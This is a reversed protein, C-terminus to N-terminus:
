YSIWSSCSKKIRNETLIIYLYIMSTKLQFEDYVGLIDNSLIASETSRNGNSLLQSNKIMNFYVNDNWKISKISYNKNLKKLLLFKLYHNKFKEKSGNKIEFIQNCKKNWISSQNQLQNWKKCILFSKIFDFPNLFLIIEELIDISINEM